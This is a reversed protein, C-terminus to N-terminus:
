AWSLGVSPFEDGSNHGECPCLCTPSVPNSGAVGVGGTYHAVLSRWLGSNPQRSWPPGAPCQVVSRCTCAGVLTRSSRHLGLFTLAPPSCPGVFSEVARWLFPFRRPSIGCRCRRRTPRHPASWGSTALGAVAARPPQCRRPPSASWGVGPPRGPSRGCDNGLGACNPHHHEVPPRRSIWYSAPPPLSGRTSLLNQCTSQGHARRSLQCRNRAYGRLAGAPSWSRTALEATPWGEGSLGEAPLPM